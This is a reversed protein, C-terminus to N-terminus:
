TWKWSNRSAHSNWANALWSNRSGRSGRSRGGGHGSWSGSSEGGGNGSWAIADWYYRWASADWYDRSTSPAWSGSWASADWDDDGGPRVTDWQWASADWDDDGGGRTANAAETTSSCSRSKKQREDKGYGRRQAGEERKARAEATRRPDKGIYILQPMHAGKQFFYLDPDFKNIDSLKQRSPPLAPWSWSDNGMKTDIHNPFMGKAQKRKQKPFYFQRQM